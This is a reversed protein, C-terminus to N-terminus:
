VLGRTQGRRPAPSKEKCHFVQLAVIARCFLGVEHGLVQPFQELFGVFALGVRLAADPSRGARRDWTSNVEM